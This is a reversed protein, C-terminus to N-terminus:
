INVVVILISTWKPYDYKIADFLREMDTGRYDKDHITSGDELNITVTAEVNPKM